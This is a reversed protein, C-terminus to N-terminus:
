SIRSSLVIVFIVGTVYAGGLTALGGFFVIQGTRRKRRATQDDMQSVVGLVPLGTAERLSRADHFSPWARAALLSSGLGAGLSAVLAGVLLLVRNPSVPQPTVRPPDVLRFEGIGAASDMQSSLNASERRALLNNYNTKNVEYDRNLQAFEAEIQPVMRASARMKAQRSEYEGVRTRLSAVNAEAEALSVKLQQYLPSKAISAASSLPGGSGRGRHVALDRRQTELQEIIRKTGIVDPHQDTYRQLLSDLARKMTDIRNDLEAIPTGAVGDPSVFAEEGSIQRKLADRANEAERLELRAQSLQGEIQSVQSSFDGTQGLIELNRLRFDKVRNEAEELKLEYARMQEEIFKKASESDHRQQGRSSEVFITVMGDIIEKAKARDASRYSLIFLDGRGASKIDLDRMLTAVLREHKADSTPGDDLGSLRILKEVNPRSLLTRSLLAIQREVDPVITMGSMLPRLISQMDIYVRASAEYKSPIFSILIAAGIGIVWSVALGLWRWTWMGHLTSIVRSIGDDM